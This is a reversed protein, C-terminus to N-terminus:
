ARRRLVLYQNLKGSKGDALFRATECADSAVHAALADIEADDFSHCYRQAEPDNQWGLIYDGPDGGEVPQAKARLRPDEAFQWFSVAVWGGPRTHAVLTKLLEERQHVTPLHHMFGFSVSLDCLPAVVDCPRTALDVHQYTTPCPPNGVLDDCNDCAWAQVGCVREALFREFRLNGCALDLVRLNASQTIGCLDLVQEWGAWPAQRTASFSAASHAYFTTTLDSLRRATQTDM